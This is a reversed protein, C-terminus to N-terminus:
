DQSQRIPQETAREAIEQLFGIAIGHKQDAFDRITRVLKPFNGTMACEAIESAAIDRGWQCEQAYNM